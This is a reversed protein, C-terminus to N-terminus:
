YGVSMLAPHIVNFGFKWRAKLNVEETKDDYWIRFQSESDLLDTAYVINKPATYLLLHSNNQDFDNAMIENWLWMPEIRVGRFTLIERVSVIDQVSSFNTPRDEIDSRLQEYTIGDVYVAKESAPLGKLRIDANDFVDRFLDLGDGASLASGSGTNKYPTQNAAVFDPLLVTWLGDTVDYAPDTDAKNGFFALRSCDKKIASRLQNELISMMMTGDLESISVGKNLLEEFVTDKFEEWCIAMDVKARDVEIYREYLNFGKIPDFGCGTHKRVVKELEQVFQLKKKSVVNPMVRFDRRVDADMFVPEFFLTRAEYGTYQVDIDKLEVM